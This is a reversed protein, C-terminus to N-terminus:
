DSRPGPKPPNQELYEIILRRAISSMAEAKQESLKVLMEYYNEPLLFTVRKLESMHRM